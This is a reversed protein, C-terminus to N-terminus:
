RWRKEEGNMVRSHEIGNAEREAIARRWRNMTLYYLSNPKTHLTDCHDFTTEVPFRSLARSFRLFVQFARYHTSCPRKESKGWWQLKFSIREHLIPNKKTPLDSHNTAEFLFFFFFNWYLHIFYDIARCRRALSARARHIILLFSTERRRRPGLM